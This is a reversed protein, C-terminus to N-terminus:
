LIDHELCKDWEDSDSDEDDEEDDDNNGNNNENDNKSETKNLQQMNEIDGNNDKVKSIHRLLINYQEENKCPECVTDPVEMYSMALIVGILIHFIIPLERFLALLFAAAIYFKSNPRSYIRTYLAVQEHTSWDTNCGNFPKKQININDLKSINEEKNETKNNVQQIQLLYRCEEPTNTMEHVFYPVELHSAMLMIFILFEFVLPQERFIALLLILVAFFKSSVQTLISSVWHHISSHGIHLQSMFSVSAAASDM